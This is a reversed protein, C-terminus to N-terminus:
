VTRVYEPRGLDLMRNLAGVAISVETARRPDTRSRLGDSIVRKLRGTDTEALARCHCRQARPNVQQVHPFRGLSQLRKPSLRRRAARCADAIADHGDPLRHSLFRERLHLRVRELPSLEPSCPPLPVRTIDGPIRPAHAGHWGAQDLVLVAHGSPRPHRFKRSVREHGRHLGRAAGPRHQPRHRAGPRHLHHDLHPSPRVPRAPAPGEAVLSPLHPWEARCPARGPVLALPAQRSPGSHGRRPRIAPGGTGQM